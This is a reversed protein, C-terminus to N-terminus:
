WSLWPGNGWEQLVWCLVTGSAIAVGYPYTTKLGASEGKASLLVGHRLSYIFTVMWRVWAWSDRRLMLIFLAMIGGCLAMSLAAAMVFSAGKLAGVLALLKVDGAGIGGMLYPVLLLGLGVAFGGAAFGLGSWGAEWVHLVFATLLTPFIISNYIRRSRVDTVVCVALVTVLLLDIFM